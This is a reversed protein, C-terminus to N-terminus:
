ALTVARQKGRTTAGESAAGGDKPNGPSPGVLTELIAVAEKPDGSLSAARAEILDRSRKSLASQLFQASFKGALRRATTYDHRAAGVGGGPADCRRGAREDPFEEAM